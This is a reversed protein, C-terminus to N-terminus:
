PELPSPFFHIVEDCADNFRINLFHKLDYDQNSRFIIAISDIQYEKELLFRKNRYLQIAKGINRMKKYNIAAEPEGYRTSTRTKVEIFHLRDDKIAVLDLECGRHLNWNHDLIQYGNRMLYLSALEEGTQGLDQAAHVKQRRAEKKAELQLTVQEQTFYHGNPFIHMVQCSDQFYKGIFTFRKSNPTERQDDIICIHYGQQIGKQIREIGQRFRETAIAKQYVISGRKNRAELPFFGFHKYFPIYAIHQQQLTEKLRESPTSLVNDTHIIPRCDVVCNIHFLQLLNILDTAVIHIDGYTYLPPKQEM